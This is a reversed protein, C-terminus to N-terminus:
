SDFILVSDSIIKTITRPDLIFTLVNEYTLNRTNSLRSFSCHSDSLHGQLVSVSAFLM